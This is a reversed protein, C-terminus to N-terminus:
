LTRRNARFAFTGFSATLGSTVGALAQVRKPYTKELGEAVIADM